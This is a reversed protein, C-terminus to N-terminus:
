VCSVLIMEFAVKSSLKRRQSRSLDTTYPNLELDELMFKSFGRYLSLIAPDKSNIRERLEGENGQFGLMLMRRSLEAEPSLQTQLQHLIQPIYLKPILSNSRAPSSGLDFLDVLSKFCVRNAGVKGRYLNENM